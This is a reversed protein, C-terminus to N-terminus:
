IEWKKIHNNLGVMVKELVSEEKIKEISTGDLVQKLVEQKEKIIQYIDEEITGKSIAYYINVCNKQGIRHARDEAQELEGPTWPMEMFLVDSSAHLTIGVGAAQFNGIFIRKKDTEQFEKIIKDRQKTLTRGDYSVAIRKYRSMLKDTTRHHLCFIILKRNENDALFDDIWECCEKFKDEVAAMRLKSIRTIDKIHSQTKNEQWEMKVERLATIYASPSPTLILETKIKDPLEKLVDKKLRRIMITDTLKQHLEETNSSGSFDWGFGNHKAGCYRQAFDWYKGFRFPAISNIIPFFEIPRNVIPTGSLAITHNVKKCISLTAKTRLAKKNKIKHCEDLIVSQLSPLYKEWYSIIDYNIIYVDAKPFKKDPVTGSLVCTSLETSLKCENEWVGKVSAPCIVLAPLAKENYQLWALSQTTKGLGMEDALLVKGGRSQIFGVGYEQFPFLKRKLGKIEESPIPHIQEQETSPSLFNKEWELINEDLVFGWERLSCVADVSPPCTWAKIEKEWKRGPPLRRMQDVVKPDYTFKIIILNNKLTAKKM